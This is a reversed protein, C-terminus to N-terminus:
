LIVFEGVAQTKHASVNDADGAAGAESPVTDLDALNPL